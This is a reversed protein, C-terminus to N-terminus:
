GRGTIIRRPDLPDPRQLRELGRSRRGLRVVEDGEGVGLDGLLGGAADPGAVTTGTDGSLDAQRTPLGRVPAPPHESRGPRQEGVQRM